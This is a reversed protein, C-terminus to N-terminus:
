MEMRSLRDSLEDRHAAGVFAVIEAEPNQLRISDLGEYMVQNREAVLVQYLEPYKRRLEELLQDIFGSDPISGIEPGRSFVMGGLTGVVARAKEKRSVDGLRDLTIRIDQDILYVDCGRQLGLRYAYLMEEGPFVGTKSGIYQQFVQILRAFVSGNSSREGRILADLRLPDLEVAVIDPDHEQLKEEVLRMSEESVHSTGYVHIM